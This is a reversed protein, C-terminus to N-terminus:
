KELIKTIEILTYPQRHGAKKKYRKKPRYKFVVIKKDKAQELVKAMVKAGTVFPTGIKIQKNKELLLIQDFTTEEGIKANIKEIKLKQGPTVLYQKGGTKIVALM